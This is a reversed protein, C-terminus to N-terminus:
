NFEQIGIDWATLGRKKCNCDKDWTFDFGTAQLIPLLNLGRDIGAFQSPNYIEHEALGGVTQDYTFSVFLNYDNDAIKIGTTKNVRPMCGSGCCINNKIEFASCTTSYYIGTNSEGNIFNNQLIKCNHADGWSVCCWQEDSGDFTNQFIIIRNANNFTFSTNSNIVYNNAVLVNDCYQYTNMGNAHTGNHNIVRNNIIQSNTCAYFTIGTRGSMEIKNSKVVVNNGDTCFIGKMRSNQYLYCGQITVNSAYAVHIAGYGEVGNTNKKIDCNRITINSIATKGTKKIAAGDLSEAGAFKQIVFGEITTGSRGTLNIGFKRSSGVTYETTAVTRSPYMIIKQNVYDYIYQGPELLANPSNHIAYKNDRDPYPNNGLAAFTIKHEAPIYTLIERLDVKNPQRWVLVYSDDWYHEDEQNFVDADVISTTTIDEKPISYFYDISDYFFKVTPVPLQAVYMKYDKETLNIETPTGSFTFSKEWLHDSGEVQTWGALVDSGDLIAKSTNFLSGVLRINDAPMTITEKYKVGGKFCAVDGSVLTPLTKKPLLQTLGSNTNNGNDYDIYYIAM